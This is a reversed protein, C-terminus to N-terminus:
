LDVGSCSGGFSALALPLDAVLGGKMTAELLPWHLWAPDRAFAAAIQGDELRLWHWVTGGAGEAWGLAEGNATAPPVAVEGEPLSALLASLLALSDGIEALRLWLRGHADGRKPTTAAALAAYAPDPLDRRADFRCGSARGVVGSAAYAAALAPPLVAVGALRRALATREDALRRLRPLARRVVALAGAIAEVGAPGLDAAVGGPVVTDMLLRHGFAVAAAEALAERPAAVAAPLPMCAVAEGIAAVAELHVGIRELELLVARLAAARAPVTVGSAAEAARAFALAHAVTGDGALRAAFRAAVRPSKGRLLALTGKHLWGLRLELSRVREGLVALHFQAAAEVMGHVPGLDLVHHPGAAARWEGPAAAARRVAPRASLPGILPWRGPDLWPRADTGGMARHGWLDAIAREFVAAQPLVPSLAPYGGEEVATSVVLFGTTDREQLLAHVHAPDAWLALLAPAAVTGLAATLARWEEGLLAQRGWPRCSVAPLARLRSALLPGM